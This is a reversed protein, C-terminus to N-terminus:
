ARLSFGTGRVTRIVGPDGLKRRLYAVYRDVVNDVAGDDWIESIAQDRTVVVGAGARLLLELLASERATLAIERGERSAIRTEPDLAVGAATLTRGAGVAPGRRGLARVRALLEPAAFPKVLYDDDGADLGAVRDEVADRATLLLIPVGVGKGRIRRCVELGDLGPMAVDLVIVDPSEREVAVLAAGGDPAATTAYGEADLTRTLMRLVPLDDDVILVRVSM